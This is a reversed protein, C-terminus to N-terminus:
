DLHGLFSMENFANHGKAIGRRRKRKVISQLKKVRISIDLGCNCSEREAAAVVCRRKGESLVLAQKAGSVSFGRRWPREIMTLTSSVSSQPPSSSYSM